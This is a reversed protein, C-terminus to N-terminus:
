KSFSLKNLKRYASPTIGKQKKFVQTFYLSDPYGSYEAINKIKIDTDSLLRCAHDIRLKTYYLHPPIGVVEKFVHNFRSESIHLMDAFKKADYNESFTHAMTETVHKMVNIETKKPQVASLQLLLRLILCESRINSVADNNLINSKLEDFLEMSIKNTPQVPTRYPIGLASFINGVDTGTFHLYRYVTRDQHLIVYKQPTLPEYIWLEGTQLMCDEFYMRGAECYFLSWDERGNKRYTMSNHTLNAIQNCSVAAVTHNTSAAKIDNRGDYIFLDKM